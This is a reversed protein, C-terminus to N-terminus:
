TLLFDFGFDLDYLMWRWRGSATQPRWYKINGQPWDQNFVYIQAIYYNIFQNIDM